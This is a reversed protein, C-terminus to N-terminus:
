EVEELRCMNKHFRKKKDQFAMPFIWESEEMPEIIRAELM